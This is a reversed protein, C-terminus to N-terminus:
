LYHWGDSFLGVKEGKKTTRVETPKEEEGSQSELTRLQSAKEPSLFNIYENGRRPILKDTDHNFLPYKDIYELWAKDAEGTTLGMKKARQYFSVAQENRQSMAELQNSISKASGANLIRSPVARQASLLDANTFRSGHQNASAIAQEALATVKDIKQAADSVGPLRGFVQGKQAFELKPYNANFSKILERFEHAGKSAQGLEKTKDQWEKDYVKKENIENRERVKAEGRQALKLENMTQPRPKSADSPMTANASIATSQPKVQGEWQSMLKNQEPHPPMMVGSGSSSFPNSSPTQPKGLSPQAFPQAQESNEPILKKMLYNIAKGGLSNTFSSSGSSDSSGQKSPELMQAMQQVYQGYQEPSLNGAAAGGLIQAIMQPGVFRAYARKSEAESRAKEPYAENQLQMKLLENRGKSAGIFDGEATPAAINPINLAM